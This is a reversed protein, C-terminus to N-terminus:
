AHGWGERLGPQCRDVPILFPMSEGDPTPVGYEPHRIGSSDVTALQMVDAVVDHLRQDYRRCVTGHGMVNPGNCGTHGWWHRSQCQSGCYVPTMDLMTDLLHGYESSDVHSARIFPVFAHCGGCMWMHRKPTRRAVWTVGCGSCTRHCSSTRYQVGARVGDRVFGSWLDGPDAFHPFPVPCRARDCLTVISGSPPLAHSEPDGTFPGREGKACVLERVCDFVNDADYVIDCRMMTAIRKDRRSREGSRCLRMVADTAHVLWSEGFWVPLVDVDVVGGYRLVRMVADAAVAYDDRDDDRDVDDDDVPAPEPSLSPCVGCIQEARARALAAVWPGAVQQVWVMFKHVHMCKICACVCKTRKCM